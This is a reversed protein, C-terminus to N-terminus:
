HIQRKHSIVNSKSDVLGRKPSMNKEVGFRPKTILLPLLLVKVDNEPLVILDSLFTNCCYVQTDRTIQFRISTNMLNKMVQKLVMKIFYEINNWIMGSIVVLICRVRNENKDKHAKIVIFIIINIIIHLNVFTCM